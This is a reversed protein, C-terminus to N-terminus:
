NVFDEITSSKSLSVNVLNVDVKSDIIIENLTQFFNILFDENTSNDTLTSLFEKPTSNTIKEFNTTINDPLLKNVRVKDKFTVTGSVDQYKGNLKLSNDDLENRISNLEKKIFDKSYVDTSLAYNGSKQYKSFEKNLEIKNSIENKSYVDSSLAYKKLKNCADLYTFTNSLLAYDKFKNDLETKSSTETKLYYKAFEKTLENKNSM